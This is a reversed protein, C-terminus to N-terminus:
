LVEFRDVWPLFCSNMLIEETFFVLDFEKVRPKVEQMISSKMAGICAGPITDLFFDVIAMGRFDFANHDEDDPQHADIWKINPHIRTAHSSM